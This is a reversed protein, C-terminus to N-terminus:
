RQKFEQWFAAMGKAFAKINKIIDKAPYEVDSLRSFSFNSVRERLNRISRDIEDWYNGVELVIRNARQTVDELNELIPTTREVLEHVDKRVAEIQETLRKLYIIAYICLASASLILIILMVDILNM